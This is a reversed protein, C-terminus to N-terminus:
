GLLQCGVLCAASWRSPIEEWARCDSLGSAARFQATVPCYSNTRGVEAGKTTCSARRAGYFAILDYREPLAQPQVGAGGCVPNCRAIRSAAIGSIGQQGPAPCPGVAANSLPFTFPLAFVVQSWDSGCSITLARLGRSFDSFDTRGRQAVESPSQFVVSPATNDADHSPTFLRWGLM